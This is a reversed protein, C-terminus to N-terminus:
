PMAFVFVQNPNAVPKGGAGDVTALFDNDTVIWLTRHKQGKIEIEPGFTMGEIKAPIAEPALGSAKLAAAVDLFETKSVAKAKLAAEGQADGLEQAGSLDIRFVKKFEAASGDGLGKGDREDVLFEHDNVALIESVGPYKPKSDSGINSLPYAYQKVKGTPLDVRVIRLFGAAKGGDQIVPGQIIGVLTTGDPTLALGEMGKNAERGQTNGSIEADGTPKQVAVGLSEPLAITKTRVGTARDFQYIHPGYEDSIFVAKGDATVRISEPDFRGNAPDLSNKAPDYNDSRGSFYFRGAGNLALQGSPLGYAKGDGYVLPTASFLLTTATVGAVEVAWGGAAPVLKMKVTQIRPIYSSTNDVALNYTKANPGRDPVMLFTDGGAWAIGSGLGAALNGAVGNELPAATQASKDAGTADIQATAILAPQANAGCALLSLSLIFARRM